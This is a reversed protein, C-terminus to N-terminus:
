RFQVIDATITCRNNVAFPLVFTRKWDVTINVLAQNEKLPNAALLAKKARDVLATSSLGGILGFVYTATATGQADKKIYYFNASSLAASNHFNGYHFACNTLTFITITTIIFKSILNKM